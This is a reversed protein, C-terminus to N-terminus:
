YPYDWRGMGGRYQRGRYGGGGGGRPGRGSFGYNQYGDRQRNNNSADQTGYGHVPTVTEGWTKAAEHATAAGSDDAAAVESGGARAELPGSPAETM